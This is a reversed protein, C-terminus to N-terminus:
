QGAENASLDGQTTMATISYQTQPTAGGDDCISVLLEQRRGIAIHVGRNAGSLLRGDVSLVAVPFSGPQTRFVGWPTIRNVTVGTLRPRWFRSGSLVIRWVIDPKGDPQLATENSCSAADVPVRTERIVEVIRPPVVQFQVLAILGVIPVVAIGPIAMWGKSLVVLAMIGAAAPLVGIRGMFQYHIYTHDVFVVYWIAIVASSIGLLLIERYREGRRMFLLILAACWSLAGALYFLTAAAPSGWFSIARGEWLREFVQRRAISVSNEDVSSMRFALERSFDGLPNIDFVVYVLALRLGIIMAAAAFFLVCLGAAQSIWGNDRRKANFAFHNVVLTVALIFPLPGSLTDFCTTISAIAAYAGFRRPIPTFFDRCFVVGALMLLPFVFGPAHAINRGMNSYDFGALLVLLLPSM